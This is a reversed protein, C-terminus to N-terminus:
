RRRTCHTSRQDVIVGEIVYIAEHVHQCLHVGTLGQTQRGAIRASTELPLHPFFLRASLEPVVLFLECVGAGPTALEDGPWASFRCRRSLARCSVMIAMPPAMPTPRKRPLLTVMSSAPGPTMM